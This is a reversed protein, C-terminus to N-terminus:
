NVVTYRSSLQSPWRTIKLASTWRTHAELQTFALGMKMEEKPIQFTLLGGNESILKAFPYHLKM